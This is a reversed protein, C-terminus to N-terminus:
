VPSVQQKLTTMHLSRRQPKELGGDTLYSNKKCAGFCLVILALM